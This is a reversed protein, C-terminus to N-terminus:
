SAAGQASRLARWARAPQAELEPAHFIQRLALSAAGRAWADDGLPEVRTEFDDALPGFLHQRLAEAMPGFMFDGARVGEGSVIVMTPNFLNVLSAMSRGLIQGGRRFVDLAVRNGAQAAAVLADPTAVELGNLRAHQVLWPEAAFTELCGRNGCTCLPGEPDVVTHGFEGGGGRAGRYVQGNAVIGLGIGRGVTVVLFDDVQQGAGYLREVLTLTNVDNDLYVPYDVHRELMEAFPVDRWGNFPSLRCVGAAADVIGALGVGVGLLRSRDVHTSRLLEDIGGALRAAVAEPEQTALAVAHRAVVEANLDTLVLTAQEEALKVGM